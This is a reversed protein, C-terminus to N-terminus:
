LVLALIRPDGSRKAWTQATIGEGDAVSRLAGKKILLDVVRVSSRKIAWILPTRGQHDGTQVNAGSEILLRIFKEDVRKVALVLLPMGEPEININPNAGCRLLKESTQLNGNKYALALATNGHVDIADILPPGHIDQLLLEAVKRAGTRAAWLLPTRRFVPDEAELNAKKSILLRSIAEHGLCAAWILPTRGHETDKCELNPACEDLLAKIANLRKSESKENKSLEILAIDVSEQLLLSRLALDKIRTLLLLTNGKKAAETFENNMEQVASQKSNLSTSSTSTDTITTQSGSNFRVSKHDPNSTTNVTNKPYHYQGLIAESQGKSMATNINDTTVDALLKRICALLSRNTEGQSVYTRTAETILGVKRYEQLGIHALGHVVNFRFYLSKDALERHSNYFDNATQETETVIKKMSEVFAKINGKFPLGPANGTGISLLFTERGPWLNRAESYARQIPNNYSSAGDIFRQGCEGIQIPDFFTTAASTARCAEWIKCDDYLNNDQL